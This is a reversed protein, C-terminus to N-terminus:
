APESYAFSATIGYESRDEDPGVSASSRSSLIPPKRSDTSRSCGQLSSCSSNDNFDPMDSVFQLRANVFPHVVIMRGFVVLSWYAKIYDDQRGPDQSSRRRRPGTGRFCALPIKWQFSTGCHFFM